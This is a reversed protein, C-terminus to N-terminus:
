RAKRHRLAGVASRAATFLARKLTLLRQESTSVHMRLSAPPPPAALVLRASALDNALLDARQGPESGRPLRKLTLFFEIEEEPTPILSAVTFDILDLSALTALQDVLEQPTWVWVHADLYETGESAQALLDQVFALDHIHGAPTLPEETAGPERTPVHVAAYHHDFVARISPRVDRDHYAQLIQGATTAPRLADFTYRRDPVVLSLLGGDELVGAVDQLWRVLDPVHEMVHSAIVWDFPAVASTVETISHLGDESLLAYDVEVIDRARFRPHQGYHDRLGEAAHIDVYVVDAEDKSVFPTHLPGIELGHGHSIDVDRLV